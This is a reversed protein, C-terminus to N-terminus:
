WRSVFACQRSCVKRSESVFVPLVNCLSSNLSSLSIFCLSTTHFFPLSRIKERGKRRELREWSPFERPFYKGAPSVYRRMSVVRVKRFKIPKGIGGRDEAKRFDFSIIKEMREASFTKWRFTVYSPIRRTPKARTRCRTYSRARRRTWTESSYIVFAYTFVDLKKTPLYSTNLSILSM